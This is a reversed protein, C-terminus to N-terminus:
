CVSIFYYINVPGILTTHPRPEPSWVPNNQLTWGISQSIHSNFCSMSWIVCYSLQFDIGNIKGVFAGHVSTMPLTYICFSFSILIFHYWWAVTMYQVRISTICTCITWSPYKLYNVLSCFFNIFWTGNLGHLEQFLQFSIAEISHINAGRRFSLHFLQITCVGM